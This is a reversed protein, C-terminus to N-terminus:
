DYNEEEEALDNGIFSDEAITKNGYSITENLKGEQYMMNYAEIRSKEFLKLQENKLEEDFEIDNKKKDKKKKKKQNIREKMEDVENQGLELAEQSVDLNLERQLHKIHNEFGLKQLAELIHNINLTKKGSDNCIDSSVQSIYSIYKLTLKDMLDLVKGDVKLHHTLAVQKTYKNLTSKPLSVEENVKEQLDSISSNNSM